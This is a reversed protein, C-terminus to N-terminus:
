PTHAFIESARTQIAKLIKKQALVGIFQMFKTHRMEVAVFQEMLYWTKTRFSSEQPQFTKDMKRLFAMYQEQEFSYVIYIEVGKVTARYRLFEGADDYCGIRADIEEKFDDDCVNETNYETIETKKM